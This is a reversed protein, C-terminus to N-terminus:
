IAKLITYLPGTFLGPQQGAVVAVAGRSLKEVSDTVGGWTRQQATLARCLAARHPLDTEMRKRAFALVAEFSYPQRYFRRVKPWDTVYDLFLDPMGPLNRFPVLM